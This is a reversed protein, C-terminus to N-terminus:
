QLVTQDKPKVRIKRRSKSEKTSLAIPMELYKKGNLINTGWVKNKKFTGDLNEEYKKRKGGFLYIL